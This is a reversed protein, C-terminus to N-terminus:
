VMQVLVKDNMMNIFTYPHGLLCMNLKPNTCRKKSSKLDRNYVSPGNVLELILSRDFGQNGGSYRGLNGIFASSEDYITIISQLDYLLDLLAEPTGPNRMRSENHNDESEM